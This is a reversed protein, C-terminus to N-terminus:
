SEDTVDEKALIDAIEQLYPSVKEFADKDLLMAIKHIDIGIRFKEHKTM